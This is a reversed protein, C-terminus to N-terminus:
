SFHMKYVKVVQWLHIVPMMGAGHIYVRMCSDGDLVGFMKRWPKERM